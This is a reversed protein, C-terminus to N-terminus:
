KVGHVDKYTNAEKQLLLFYFHINKHQTHMSKQLVPVVNETNKGISNILHFNRRKQKTEIVM